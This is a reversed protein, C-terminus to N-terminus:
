HLHFPPHLNLALYLLLVIALEFLLLVLLVLSLLSLSSSSSPFGPPPVLFPLSLVLRCTQMWRRFFM